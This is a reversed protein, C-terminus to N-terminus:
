TSATARTSGASSTSAAARAQAIPEGAMSGSRDIVLTVDKPAIATRAMEPAALSLAFYGDQGKDRHM